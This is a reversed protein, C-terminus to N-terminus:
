CMISIYVLLMQAIASTSDLLLHLCHVVPKCKNLVDGLCRTSLGEMIRHRLYRRWRLVTEVEMM